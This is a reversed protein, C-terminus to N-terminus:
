WKKMTAFCALVVLVVLSELPNQVILSAVYLLVSPALGFMAIVAAYLWIKEFLTYKRSEPNGTVVRSGELLNCPKNPFRPILPLRAPQLDILGVLRRLTLHFALNAVSCALSERGGPQTGAWILALGV